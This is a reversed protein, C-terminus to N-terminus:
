ISKLQLPLGACVLSVQDCLKAVEQHLWGSEDAFTRSLEGMPVIGSGVENSVMFVDASTTSLTSLFDDRQQPWCNQHLCNSLWLTFCDILVTSQASVDSLIHGLAIPEELVTWLDSRQEQHHAIRACMEADNATATAIYIPATNNLTNRNWACHEAYRSKGSRAGGLILHKISM